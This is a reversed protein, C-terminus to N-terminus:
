REGRAARGPSPPPEFVQAAQPPGRVGVLPGRPPRFPSRRPPFSTQPRGHGGRYGWAPEGWGGRDAPLGPRLPAVRGGEGRRPRFAPARRARRREGGVRGAGVRVGPGRKRPAPRASLARPAPRPPPRPLPTPRCAAAAVRGRRALRRSRVRAKPSPKNFRKGRHAYRVFPPCRPPRGRGPLVDRPFPRAPPGLRRSFSPGAPAGGQERGGRLGAGRAGRRPCCAPPGSRHPCPVGGAPM